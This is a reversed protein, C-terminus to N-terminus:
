PYTTENSNNQSYIVDTMPLMKPDAMPYTMEQDWKYFRFYEYTSHFPYKNNAPNGFAGASGFVWLNMMIKASLVPIPRTAGTNTNIVVGDCYWTVKTPTWEIIYTHMQQINFNAIGAPAANSADGGPYGQAGNANVMNWAVKTKINAELELDLERWEKWKPTRFTFMTSLFNGDAGAGGNEVPAQYKVEYRGYRFNNYKTRFEGSAVACAHPTGTTKNLDPEAYSISSPVNKAVATIIMQGGAFTIQDKQFRAQGEPPGGDSWTWIPDKDLDIPQDFEEAM